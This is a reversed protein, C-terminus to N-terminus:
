CAKILSPDGLPTVRADKVRSSFYEGTKVQDLVEDALDEITMGEKLDYELRIVAEFVIAM